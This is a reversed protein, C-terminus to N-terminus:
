VREYNNYDEDDGMRMNKKDIQDKNVKDVEQKKDWYKYWQIAKVVRKLEDALDKLKLEEEEEGSVDETKRKKPHPFRPVPPKLKGKSRNIGSLKESKYDDTEEIEKKEKELQNEISILQRKEKMVKEHDNKNKIFWNYLCKECSIHKCKPCMKPKTIKQSCIYCRVTEKIENGLNENPLEM